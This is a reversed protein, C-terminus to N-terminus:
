KCYKRGSAARFVRATDVVKDHVWRLARLDNELSHGVLVDNEGVISILAAQIQELRTTVPDMSAATVGSYETVYDLIAEHPKVLEDLMVM